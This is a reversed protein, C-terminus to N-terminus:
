IIQPRYAMKIKKPPTQHTDETYLESHTERLYKGLIFTVVYAFPGMAWLLGQNPSYVAEATGM